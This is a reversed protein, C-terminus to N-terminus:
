VEEIEDVDRVRGDALGVIKQFDVVETYGSIQADERLGMEVVVHKQGVDRPEKWVTPMFTGAKLAKVAAKTAASEDEFAPAKRMKERKTKIWEVLRRKEDATMDPRQLYEPIIM